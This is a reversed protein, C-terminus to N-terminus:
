IAAKRRWSVQDTAEARTASTPHSCRVDGDTLSRPHESHGDVRERPPITLPQDLGAPVPRVAAQNRGTLDPSETATPRVVLARCSVAELADHAVALEFTQKRLNLQLCTRETDHCHDRALRRLLECEGGDDGGGREHFGRGDHM